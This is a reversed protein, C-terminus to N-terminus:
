NCSVRVMMNNYRDEHYKRAKERLELQREPSQNNFWQKNYELLKKKDQPPLQKYRGKRKQSIAEKKAHYYDLAKKKVIKRYSVLKTDSEFNDTM